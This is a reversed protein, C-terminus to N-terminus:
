EKNLFIYKPIGLIIARYKLEKYIKFIKQESKEM